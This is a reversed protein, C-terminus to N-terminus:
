GWEPSEKKRLDGKYTQIGANDDAFDPVSLKAKPDFCRLM